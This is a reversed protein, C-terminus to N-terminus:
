VYFITVALVSFGACSFEFEQPFRHFSPYIQDSKYGDLISLGSPQSDMSSRTAFGATLSTKRKELSTIRVTSAQGALFPCYRL